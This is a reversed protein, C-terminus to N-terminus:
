DRIPDGSPVRTTSKPLDTTPEAEDEEAAQKEEEEIQRLRELLPDPQPPAQLSSRVQIGRIDATGQAPSEPNPSRVDGTGVAFQLVLALLVVGMSLAAVGAFVWTVRQLNTRQPVEPEPKDEQGPQGISIYESDMESAAPDPTPTDEIYLAEDVPTPQKGTEPPPPPALAATPKPAESIALEPEGETIWKSDDAPAPLDDPFDNPDVFFPGDSYSKEDGTEEEDVVWSPTDDPFADPDVSFPGKAEPESPDRRTM